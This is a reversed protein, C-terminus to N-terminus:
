AARPATAWGCCCPARSAARARGRTRPDAPTAEEAARARHRRPCPGRHRAAGAVRRPRSGPWAPVAARCRPALNGPTPAPPGSTALQAAECGRRPRDPWPPTPRSGRRRPRGPHPAGQAPGLPAPEVGSPARAAAGTARATIRRQGAHLRGRRHPPCARARASGAMTRRHPRMEANRGPAPTAMAAPSRLGHPGQTPVTAALGSFAVGDLAPGMAAARDRFAGAHADDAVLM